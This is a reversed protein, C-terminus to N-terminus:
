VAEPVCVMWNPVVNVQIGLRIAKINIRANDPILLAPRANMTLRLQRRGFKGPPGKDLSVTIRHIIFSTSCMMSIFVMERNKVCASAPVRGEPRGILLPRM